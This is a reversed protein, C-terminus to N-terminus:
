SSWMKPKGRRWCKQELSREKRPGESWAKSSAKSNPRKGTLTLDPKILQMVPINLAFAHLSLIPGKGAISSPSRWLFTPMRTVSAKRRLIGKERRHHVTLNLLSGESAWKIHQRNYM